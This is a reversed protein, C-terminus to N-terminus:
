KLSRSIWFGMIELNWQWMGLRPSVVLTSLAVWSDCKCEQSHSPIFGCTGLHIRVKPTPIGISDQIKLSTNWPDLNMSNFIEKYWQIKKSVYVDLIPKCSGNSHKFCLNHGFSPNLTLSGIQSWVVLFWSNGQFIHTYTIHWMNNFINWHPNYSQKLGWVESWNSTQM